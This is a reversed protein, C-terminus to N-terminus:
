IFGLDSVARSTKVRYLAADPFYGTVDAGIDSLVAAATLPGIGPITTLLDRQARFPLMMAKHTGLVEDV